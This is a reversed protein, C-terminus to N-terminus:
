SKVETGSFSNIINWIDDHSRKSGPARSFACDLCLCTTPNQRLFNDAIRRRCLTCTGFTGAELRELADRLAALRGETKFALYYRIPVTPPVHQHFDEELVHRAQCELVQRYEEIENQTM